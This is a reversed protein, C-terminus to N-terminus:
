RNGFHSVAHWTNSLKENADECDKALTSFIIDVVVLQEIRSVTASKRFLSETNPIKIVIDAIKSLTNNGIRTIAVVKADNAKALKACETAVSTEGSYSFVIALDDKKLTSALVLQMDYDPSIESPFGLRALKMHLDDAVMASAGAGSLVIRQSNKIMEITSELDRESLLDKLSLLSSRITDVMSDAIENLSSAENLDFSNDEDSEAGSKSYIEKVLCLNFDHFGSFGLHKCFRIVAAPSSNARKALTTVNDEIVKDPFQLVTKAIKTESGSLSPLSQKILTICGDMFEIIIGLTM